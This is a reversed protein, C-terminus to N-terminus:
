EVILTLGFDTCFELGAHNESEGFFVDVDAPDFFLGQGRDLALQIAAHDPPLSRVRLLKDQFGCDFFRGPQNLAVKVERGIMGQLRLLAATFDISQPAEMGRLAGPTM